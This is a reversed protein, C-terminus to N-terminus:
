KKSKSEEIKVMEEAVAEFKAIMKIDYPYSGNMMDIVRKKSILMKDALEKPTKSYENCFDKITKAIGLSKSLERFEANDLNCLIERLEKRM